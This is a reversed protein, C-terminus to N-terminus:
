ALANSIKLALSIYGVNRVGHELGPDERNLTVEPVVLLLTLLSKQEAWLAGLASENIYQCSCAFNVASKRSVPVLEVAISRTLEPINFIRHSKANSAM